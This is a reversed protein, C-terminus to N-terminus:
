RFLGGLTVTVVALLAAALMLVFEDVGGSCGLPVGVAETEALQPSARWRTAKFGLEAAHYIGSINAPEIRAAMWYGMWRRACPTLADCGLRGAGACSHQVWGNPAWGRSIRMLM